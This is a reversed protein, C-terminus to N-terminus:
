QRRQPLIGQEAMRQGTQLLLERKPSPPRQVSYQGRSGHRVDQRLQRCRVPPLATAILHSPGASRCLYPVRELGIAVPAPCQPLRTQFDLLGVWEPTLTVRVMDQVMSALQAVWAKGQEAGFYREAARHPM